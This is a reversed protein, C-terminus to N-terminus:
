IGLQRSVRPGALHRLPSFFRPYLLGWFFAAFTYNVLFIVAAIDLHTDLNFIKPFVDGYFKIAILSEATAALTLSPLGFLQTALGM